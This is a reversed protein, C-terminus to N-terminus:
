PLEEICTLMSQIAARGIRRFERQIESLLNHSLHWQLIAQLYSEVEKISYAIAVIPIFLAAPRCTPAPPDSACAAGIHRIRRM